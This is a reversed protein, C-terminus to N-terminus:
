TLRERAYSWLLPGGLAIALVLLETVDQQMAEPLWGAAVAYAVLPAVGHRILRNIETM